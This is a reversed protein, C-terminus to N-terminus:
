SISVEATRNFFKGVESILYFSGTFLVVEFPQNLIQNIGIKFNEFDIGIQIQENLERPSFVRPNNNVPLIFIEKFHNVIIPKIKAIDKDRSSNFVFAIKKSPFKIKMKEVLKEYSIVNHAVDLVITKDKYIFTEYRGPLKLKLLDNIKSEDYEVQYRKSIEAITTKAILFNEIEASNLENHKQADSFAAPAFTLPAQLSTARNKFVLNVDERQQLAVVPTDTKIIGAKEAAILAHTNGLLHIHDLDIRTVVSIKPTVINTADLRGGLGTELILWDVKTKKFYLLSALTMIEFYSLTKDSGNNMMARFDKIMEAFQFNTLSAGNLKVRENVQYLHPSTFLGTKLNLSRLYYELLMCVSGKGKTGAVHIIKLDKHPSNLMKDLLILNELSMKYNALAPNKLAEYNIQQNLYSISLEYEQNTSM